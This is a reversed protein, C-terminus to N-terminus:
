RFQKYMAAISDPDDVPAEKAPDWKVRIVDHNRSLLQQGRSVLQFQLDASGLVMRVDFRVRVYKEGRNYWHRNKLKMDVGSDKLLSEVSCLLQVGDQDLSTPLQERPNTSMIINTKWTRSEHGPKVKLWYPKSVGNSPM